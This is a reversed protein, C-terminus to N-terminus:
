ANRSPGIEHFHFPPRHIGRETIIASILSAATIDFAPSYVKIGEPATRRGFGETVEKPNREEIPIQDGSGTAPDITSSPAAVYFPIGHYRATVAHNYTGIKNATDGNAAIRDAGVIVCTIKTKKMLFCAMSDTILTVDVGLKMLEWATLRAGQLTPRTESAYVSISKGQRFATTIVSQATGDGGTALAGTNCHTLITASEPILSSGHEGIKRCMEEDERHIGLAEDVLLRRANETSTALDLVRKMRRVSWSLNVATPRTANLEGAANHVFRSFAQFDTGPFTLAALAVGYAAAVGIAPAGRIRLASIAEALVRFDDTEITTEELPLKTQDILRVRSGLWEISRM